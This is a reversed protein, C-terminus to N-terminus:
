TEKAGSYDLYEKLWPGEEGLDIRDFVSLLWDQDETSIRQDGWGQNLISIIRDQNPMQRNFVIRKFELFVDLRHTRDKAWVPEDAFQRCKPVKVLTRKDIPLGAAHLRQCVKFMEDQLEEDSLDALPDHKPASKELATIRRQLSM